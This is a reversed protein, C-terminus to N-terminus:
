IQLIAVGLFFCESEILMLKLEHALRSSILHFSCLFTHTNGKLIRSKIQSLKEDRQSWLRNHIFGLRILTSPISLIVYNSSLGPTLLCITKATYVTTVLLLTPCSPKVPLMTLHFHPTSHETFGAMSKRFILSKRISHSLQPPYLWKGAIM